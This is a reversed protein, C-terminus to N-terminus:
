WIKKKSVLRLAQNKSLVHVKRKDEEISESYNLCLARPGVIVERQGMKYKKEKVDYPNKIVIYEDLIHLNHGIKKGDNLIIAQKAEGCIEEASALVIRKPGIETRM